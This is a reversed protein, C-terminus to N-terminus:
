AEDIRAWQVSNGGGGERRLGYAESWSLPQESEARVRWGLDKSESFSGTSSDFHGQSTIGGSPIFRVGLAGHPYTECSRLLTDNM